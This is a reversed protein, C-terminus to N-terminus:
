SILDTFSTLSPDASGSGYLAAEYSALASPDTDNSRISVHATPRSGLGMKPSSSFNWSFEMPAISGGVSSYSRSAPTVMLNYLVHIVYGHELGAIDDGILTRYSLGFTEAMQNHFYVGPNSSEPVGLCRNFEEPYTYAKFNLEANGFLQVNMYKMGDQYYPQVKQSSVEEAGTVGNWPIGRGDQLYLVGRDIGTQFQRDGLADWALATM